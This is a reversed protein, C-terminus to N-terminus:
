GVRRAGCGGGHLTTGFVALGLRSSIHQGRFRGGSWLDVRLAVPNAPGCWEGVVRAWESPPSSGHRWWGQAERTTDAARKSSLM